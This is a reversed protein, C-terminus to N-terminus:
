SRDNYLAGVTSGGGLRLWGASGLMAEDDSVSAVFGVNDDTRTFSVTFLQGERGTRTEPDLAVSTRPEVTYLTDLSVGSEMHNIEGEMVKRFASEPLYGSANTYVTAEEGHQAKPWHLPLGKPMNTAGPPDERPTLYTFHAESYPSEADAKRRLIDFPVPFLREIGNSTRRALTFSQLTLAGVETQTGAVTAAPTDAIGFDSVGFNADANSLIASRLAGYISTPRPPFHGVALNDETSASFSRGDRFLLVDTPDIFFSTM